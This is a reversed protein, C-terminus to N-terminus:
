DASKHLTWGDAWATAIGAVHAAGVVAVIVGADAGRPETDAGAAHMFTYRVAPRAARAAGESAGRLRALHPPPAAAAIRRLAAAMVVDRERLLAAPLLGRLMADISSGGAAAWRRQLALAVCAACAAAACLLLLPVRAPPTLRLLMAAAAALALAPAALAAIYRRLATGIRRSTARAPRDICLLEAAGAEAAAAIAARLDVGTRVRAARAALALAAGVPAMVAECAAADLRALMKVASRRRRALSRRYLRPPRLAADAAAAAARAERRGDSSVDSLAGEGAADWADGDIGPADGAFRPPPPELAVVLVGPRAPDRECLPAVALEAAAVGAAASYARGARAVAERAQLADARSESAFRLFASDSPFHRVVCCMELGTLQRGARQASADDMLAAFTAHFAPLWPVAPPADAADGGAPPYKARLEPALAVVYSEFPRLQRPTVSILLSDADAEAALWAARGRTAPQHAYSLRAGRVDAAVDAFLGTRALLRLDAAVDARTVAAGPQCALRSLLTNADPHGPVPREAVGRLAVRAFRWRVPEAPLLGRLRAGCLEVCVARPRCSARTLTAASKPAPQASRACKLLSILAAVDAASQPSVHSTGILAV